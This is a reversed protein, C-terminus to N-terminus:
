CPKVKNGWPQWSCPLGRALWCPQVRGGGHTAAPSAGASSVVTDIIHVISKGAPVDATVVTAKNTPGAVTVKGDAVTLTVKAADGLLTAAEQLHWPAVL